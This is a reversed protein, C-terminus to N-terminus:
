QGRRAEKMERWLDLFQPRNRKTANEWETVAAVREPLTVKMERNLEAEIAATKEAAARVAEYIQVREPPLADLVDQPYPQFEGRPSFLPPLDNLEIGM